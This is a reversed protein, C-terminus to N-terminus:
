ERGKQLLPSFFPAKREAQQILYQFHQRENDEMPTLPLRLTNNQIIKKQALYEKIGIPNTTMFLAKFLPFLKAHQQQASQVRGQKFDQIMRKIQNGHTHSAVSIVGKAGLSLMPLTLSDDGSYIAFSDPVANKIESFKDMDSFSQKLGVINPNQRALQGITQADMNIGTRGPINYIIIPLQPAAHAVLTYHKMLHPPKNYAPVVVVAADAGEQYARRTQEVAKRTDNSGTGVLLKCKKHALKLKAFRFLMWKEKESLTPEEGTSGGLLIGDCQNSVQKMLTDLSDYDIHKGEKTFPTIMATIVEGLDTQEM